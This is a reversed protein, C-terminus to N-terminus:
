LVTCRKGEGREHAAREEATLHREYWATMAAEFVEQVGEGTKASCEVFADAGIKRRLLEADSAKLASRAAYETTRLDAKTAVLIVSFPRQYMSRGGEGGAGSAQAGDRKQMDAAVQRIERYWKMEVNTFSQPNNWSFCVVFVSVDDSASSAPASAASGKAGDVGSNGRSADKSSFPSSLKKSKNPTPPTAPSASPGGGYCMQRLQQYEEQGATDWLTLRITEHDDGNAASVDAEFNNFVTPVHESLFQGPNAYAYLLCTKGVSADGIVVVKCRRREAKASAEDRSSM